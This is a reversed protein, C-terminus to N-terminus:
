KHGNLLRTDIEAAANEVEKPSPCRHNPYDENVTEPETGLAIADASNGAAAPDFFKSARCTVIM